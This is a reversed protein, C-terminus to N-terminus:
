TRVTMSAGTCTVLCTGPPVHVSATLADAEVVDFKASTMQTAVAMATRAHLSLPSPALMRGTAGALAMFVILQDACHCDVCARSKLAVGLEAGADAGVDEARKGRQGLGSAGLLCGTDTEAVLTIGCGSGVARNPPEQCVTIDVCSADLPIDAALLAAKAADAMRQAAHLPINGAVFAIGRVAVIHGRNVLEICRLQQGPALPTATLSLVGGGKPYFGRVHLIASVHVHLQRRLTPLLVQLLYDVAPASTTDTGGKLTLRCSDNAAAADGDRSAFLLCPLASQALLTISGATGTDATHEGTKLMSGPRLTIDCSGVAGGELSGGCLSAILQLGALHQPRLGPNDRGARISHVRVAVNTICALSSANRLIQGGGELQSGDILATRQAMAPEAIAGCDRPRKKQPQRQELIEHTVGADM